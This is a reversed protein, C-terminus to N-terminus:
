MGDFGKKGGQARIMKLMNFRVTKSLPRCQGALIEDGPKVRFCPSVHIPTNKHRKEFRGYKKIYHLYDQPSSISAHRPSVLPQPFPTLAALFLIRGARSPSCVARPAARCSVKRIIVTNKMKATKIVGTM